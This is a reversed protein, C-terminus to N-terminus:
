NEKQQQKDKIDELLLKIQYILVFPALITFCIHIIDMSFQKTIIEIIIKINAALTVIFWFIHSKKM